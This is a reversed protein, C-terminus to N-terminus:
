KITDVTKETFMNEKLWENIHCNGKIKHLINM